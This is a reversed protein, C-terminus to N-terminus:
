VGSAAVIAASSAAVAAANASTEQDMKIEMTLNKTNCITTSSVPHCTNEICCMYGGKSEIAAQAMYVLVVALVFVSALFIVIPALDQIRM